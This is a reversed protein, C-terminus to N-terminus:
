MRVAAVILRVVFLYYYCLIWVLGVCLIISRASLTHHRYDILRLTSATQQQASALVFLVSGFSSPSFIHESPMPWTYAISVCVDVSACVCVCIYYYDLASKHDKIVNWIKYKNKNEKKKRRWKNTREQWENTENWVKSNKICVRRPRVRSITRYTSRGM